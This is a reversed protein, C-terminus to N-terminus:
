PELVPCLYDFVCVRQHHIVCCNDDDLCFSLFLCIDIGYIDRQQIRWMVVWEWWRWNYSEINWCRSKVEAGSSITLCCPRPFLISLCFFFFNISSKPKSHSGYLFASNKFEISTVDARTTKLNTRPAAWNLFVFITTRRWFLRFFFLPTPRSFIFLYLLLTKHHHHHHHLAVSVGCVNRGGLFLQFPKKRKKLFFPRVTKQNCVFLQCKFVCLYLSSDSWWPSFNLFFLLYVVERVCVCVCM